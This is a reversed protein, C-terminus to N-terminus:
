WQCRLARAASDESGADTDSGRDEGCPGMPRPSSEGGSLAAVAVTARQREARIEEATPATKRQRPRQLQGARHGAGRHAGDRTSGERLDLWDRAKQPTWFFKTGGDEVVRVMSPFLMAYQINLTCLQRKIEMYSTRHRQVDRSFDPFIGVQANDIKLEGAKRAQALIHDRDEDVRHLILPLNVESAPPESCTVTIPPSIAAEIATDAMQLDHTEILDGEETLLEFPNRCPINPVLRIEPSLPLPICEIEEVHSTGQTHLSNSTSSYAVIDQQTSPITANVIPLKGAGDIPEGSDVTQGKRKKNFFEQIRKPQLLPKKQLLTGHTGLESNLIAEVEEFLLDIEDLSKPGGQVIKNTQKRPRKKQKKIDDLPAQPDVAKRKGM